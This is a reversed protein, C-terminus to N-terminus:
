YNKRMSEIIEKMKKHLSAPKNVTCHSGLSLIRLYLEENIFVTIKFTIEGNIEKIITQTKHLPELLVLQNIPPKITLEVDQQKGSNEMIGTAHYFFSDAQFDRRRKHVQELVNLELIRDLAFTLYNAREECWGIFYWRNRHEKLLYPVISYSKIQNKYINRYTFHVAFKKQICGYLLDIWQMGNNSVSHEFQIYENIVSDDTNLGLSFRTNIREIANKFNAFIPVDKYQFLLQAAFSLATWEYDELNLESISFGQEGYTYGRNAKSYVIPTSFGTINVLCIRHLIVV